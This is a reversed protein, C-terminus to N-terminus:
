LALKQLTKLVGEHNNDDESVPFRKQLELSKGKKMAFPQGAELLMELDNDSDGFAIINEKEIQLQKALHRLASGKDVGELYAEGYPSNTWPRFKIGAEKEVIKKLTSQYAKGCRFVATFPDERLTEELPGEIENMGAYPFYQDLYDDHVIDYITEESECSFSALHGKSAVAIRRLALCSFRKKITPFARNEPDYVLAGNYCILPSKLGCEEYFPALSRYPRGSALVVIHGKDQLARLFKATAPTLIQRKTVLTGDVDIAILKKM